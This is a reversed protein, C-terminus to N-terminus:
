LLRRWAQEYPELVKRVRPLLAGRVGVIYEVEILGTSTSTADVSINDNITAPDVLERAFVRFIESLIVEM